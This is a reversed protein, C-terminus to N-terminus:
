LAMCNYRFCIRSEPRRIKAHDYVRNHTFDEIAKCVDHETADFSINRVYTRRRPGTIFKRGSAEIRARRALNKQSASLVRDLASDQVDVHM